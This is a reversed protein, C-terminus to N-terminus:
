SAPAEQEGQGEDEQEAKPLAVLRYIAKGDVLVLEAFKVTTGAALDDTGCRAGHEDGQGPDESRGPATGDHGPPDDGNAHNDEGPELGEGHDDGPEEEGRGRNDGGEGGRDGEHSATAGGRLHHRLGHRGRHRGNDCHIHTRPTVLGSVSGGETLDITLVGTEQDFSQITGADALSDHGHHASALGPLAFLALAAAVAVLMGALGARKRQPNM